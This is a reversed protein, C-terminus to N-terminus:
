KAQQEPDIKQKLYQDVVKHNIAHEKFIIIAKEKTIDDYIYRIGSNDIVEIIPNKLNEDKNEEKQTITVDSQLDNDLNQIEKIIEKAGSSIGAEGMCVKLLYGNKKERMHLIAKKQSRINKLDDITKKM